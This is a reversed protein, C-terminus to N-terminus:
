FEGLNEAMKYCPHGKRWNIVVHEEDGNSVEGSIDESNVNGDVIEELFDPSKRGHM